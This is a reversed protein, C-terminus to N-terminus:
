QLGLNRRKNPLLSKTQFFISVLSRFIRTHLSIYESCLKGHCVCHWKNFPRVVNVLSPKVFRHVTLILDFLNALAKKDNAFLHVLKKSTEVGM